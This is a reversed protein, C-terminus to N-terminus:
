TSITGDDGLVEETVGLENNGFGSEWSILM